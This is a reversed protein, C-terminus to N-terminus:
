THRADVSKGTSFLLARSAIILIVAGTQTKDCLTPKAIEKHAKNHFRLHKQDWWSIRRANSLWSSVHLMRATSPSPISGLVYTLTASNVLGSRGSNTTHHLSALRSVRLLWRRASAEEQLSLRNSVTGVLPQLHAGNAAGWQEGLPRGKVARTRSMCQVSSAFSSHSTGSVSTLASTCYRAARAILRPPPPERLM